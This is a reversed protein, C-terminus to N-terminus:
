KDAGIKNRLAQLLVTYNQKDEPRHKINNGGEVPIEWDIDIGDFGYATMLNYASDVFRQLKNPDAATDSFNISYTWGGISLITKLHPYKKRIDALSKFNVRIDNIDPM